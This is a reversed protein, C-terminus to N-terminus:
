PRVCLRAGREEITGTVAETIAAQLNGMLRVRSSVGEM